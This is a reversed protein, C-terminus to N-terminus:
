ENRVEFFDVFREIRGCRGLGDWAMRWGIRRGRNVDRMRMRRMRRVRRIRWKEEREGEGEV